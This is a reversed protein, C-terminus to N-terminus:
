RGPHGKELLRVSLSKRKALPVLPAWDRVAPPTAVASEANFRITVIQQPRIPFRYEPGGTLPQPKEGMMNTLGAGRFPLRLRIGATGKAGNCEVM